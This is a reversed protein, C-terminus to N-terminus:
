IDEMEDSKANELEIEADVSRINQQILDAFATLAQNADESTGEYYVIQQALEYLAGPAQAMSYLVPDRGYRSIEGMLLKKLYTAGPTPYENILDMINRYILDYANVIRVPKAKPTQSQRRKRTEYGKRASAKRREKVAQTGSIIDGTEESIATAYKYLSYRNLGKLREIDAKRPNAVPIDLGPISQFRFGRKEARRIFNRIRRLEANYASRNQKRSAM